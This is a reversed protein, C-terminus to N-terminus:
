EPNTFQLSNRFKKVTGALAINQGVKLERILYAMNFFTATISGSSDTVIIQPANMRRILIKKTIKGIVTANQNESLLNVKKINTYDEYRFPFHLVLDELNFIGLNSFKVINRKEMFPLQDLPTELPLNKLLLEHTIKDQIIKIEYFIKALLNKVWIHREGIGLTKYKRSKM